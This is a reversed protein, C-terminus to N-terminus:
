PSARGGCSVISQAIQDVDCCKCGTLWVWVISGAVLSAIGPNISESESRIEGVHAALFYNRCAVRRM